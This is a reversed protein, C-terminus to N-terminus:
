NEEEATGNVLCNLEGLDIQLTAAIALLNSLKPEAHGLEINGYGRTSVGCREAAELMGIGMSKRKERILNGFNKKM